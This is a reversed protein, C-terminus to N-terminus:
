LVHLHSDEPNYRRTTKYFNALTDSTRAAEMTLSCPALVWFVAMKMRAASFVEFGVNYFIDFEQLKLNHIGAISIVPVKGRSAETALGASPSGDKGIEGYMGM